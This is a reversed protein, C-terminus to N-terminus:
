DHEIGFYSTHTILNKKEKQHFMYLILFFNMDEGVTVKFYQCKAM